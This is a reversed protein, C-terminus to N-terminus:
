PWPLPRIHPETTSNRTPYSDETPRVPTKHRVKVSWSPSALLHLTPPLLTLSQPLWLDTTFNDKRGVAKSSKCSRQRNSTHLRLQSSDRPHSGRSESNEELAIQAHAVQELLGRLSPELLLEQSVSSTLIYKAFSKKRKKCVWKKISSSLEQM